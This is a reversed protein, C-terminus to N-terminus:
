LLVVNALYVNTLYIPPLPISATASLLYRLWLITLATPPSFELAKLLGLLPLFYLPLVKLSLSLLALLSAKSPLHGLLYGSTHIHSALVFVLTYQRTM